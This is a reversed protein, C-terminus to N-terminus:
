RGARAVARSPVQSLRLSSPHEADFLLTTVGGAAARLLHATPPSNPFDGTSISVRLRHGPQLALSTPLIELDLPYVTGPELPQAAAATFPHFVQEISGDSAYVTCDLVVPGTCRKGTIARQSGLLAGYSVQRSSGDPAVDSLVAIVNTEPRTSRVWLRLNGSGTLLTERGFPATTFVAAGTENVRNDQSCPSDPVAGFLYQTSNRACAGTVPLFPLDITGATRRRNSLTGDLRANPSTGSAAGDLALTLSQSRPRATQQAIFQGAGQWYMEVTPLAEIGNRINKAWRDFWQVALRNQAPLVRGRDDKVVRSGDEASLFNGTTQHYGATHVLKKKSTPLRLADYLAPQSRQFIDYQGGVLFTPVTIRHANVLTSRERYFAGDHVAFKPDATPLTEVTGGGAMIALKSVLDPAGQLLHQTLANLSVQPNSPSSVASGVIGEPVVLGAGWVTLFQLNPSGGSSFIDRYADGLAVVSFVAKLAQTGPQQAAFLGTIASYSAGYMVVSGNSWPQRAAWRVVEGADQQERKCFQCWVGESAGTGRADVVLQVYGNAPFIPDIARGSTSTQKNKSYPTVTVVVPYRGAGPLHADARLVAGDSVPIELDTVTSTAAGAGAHLGGLLVSLVAFLLALRRPLRMTM